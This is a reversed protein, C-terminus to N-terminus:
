RKVTESVHGAFTLSLKTKQKIKKNIGQTTLFECNRLRKNQKQLLVPRDVYGASHLTNCDRKHAVFLLITRSKCARDVPNREKSCRAAGCAALQRPHFAGKPSVVSYNDDAGATRTYNGQLLFVATDAILSQIAHRDRVM